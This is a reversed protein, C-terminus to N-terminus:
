DLFKIYPGKQEVEETDEDKKPSTCPEQGTFNLPFFIYLKVCSCCVEEDIANEDNLLKPKLNELAKLDTRWAKEENPPIKLLSILNRSKTCFLNFLIVKTEPNALM